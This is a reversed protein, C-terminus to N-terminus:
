VPRWFAHFPTMQNLIPVIPPSNHVSYYVNLKIFHFESYSLLNLKQPLFRSWPTIYIQINRYCSILHASRTVNDPQMRNLFLASFITVLKILPLQYEAQSHSCIQTGRTADSYRAPHLNRKSVSVRQEPPKVSSTCPYM